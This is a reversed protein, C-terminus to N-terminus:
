EFLQLIGFDGATKSRDYLIQVSLPPRSTRMVKTKEMNMELGYCNGIEILGDIKCQLITEEKALLAHTCAYV